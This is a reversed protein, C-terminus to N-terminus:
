PAKGVVDIVFIESQTGLRFPIGWLGYGSTVFIDRGNINEHGYAIRYFYQVILNAPFIQGNHTHGSVQIDMPEQSNIEVDTPRHDMVIVPLNLNAGQLLQKLSPRNKVLDDNRGVLTIRDGIQITQDMLPVIGVARIEQEIRKQDGFFDHNGLTAYVGLPAQLKALHSAMQEDLYADVNDDMIDGPLLIIDVKEARMIQALKDLQKGGFIKGLHLDSAVGLRLPPTAKDLQVTFYRVTPVYTNYLSLGILGAFSLLYITKLTKQAQPIFIKLIGVASTAFASYLLLVLVLAAVRFTDEYLRLPASWVLANLLLFISGNVLWRFKGKFNGLWNLSRLFIILFIQLVLLVGGMIFYYRPEM